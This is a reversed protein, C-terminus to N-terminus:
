WKFFVSWFEINSSNHYVVVVVIFIWDLNFSFFTLHDTWLCFLLNYLKFQVNSGFWQNPMHIHINIDIDISTHYVFKLSFGQGGDIDIWRTRHRWKLTSLKNLKNKWRWWGCRERNKNNNFQISCKFPYFLNM